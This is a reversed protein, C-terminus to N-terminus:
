STGGVETSVSNSVSSKSFLVIGTTACAGLGLLCSALASMDRTELGALAVYHSGALFFSYFYITLTACPKLGLVLSALAPLNRFNSVLRTM